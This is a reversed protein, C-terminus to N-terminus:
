PEVPEDGPCPNYSNKPSRFWRTFWVNWMYEYRLVRGESTWINIRQAEPVFRALYLSGGIGTLEALLKGDEAKFFTLGGGETGVYFAGDDLTFGVNYIGGPITHRALSREPVKTDWLEVQNGEIGLVRRGNGDMLLTKGPQNLDLGKLTIPDVNAKLNWVKTDTDKGWVMWLATRTPVLRLSNTPTDLGRSFHSAPELDVASRVEYALEQDGQFRSLLIFDGGPAVMLQAEDYRAPPQLAVTRPHELDDASYYRLTAKPTASGPPGDGRPQDKASGVVLLAFRRSVPDAAVSFRERHRSTYLEVEKKGFEWFLLKQDLGGPSDGDSRYQEVTVV